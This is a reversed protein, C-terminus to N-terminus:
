GPWFTHRGSGRPNGYASRCPDHRWTRYRAGCGRQIQLKDELQQNTFAKHLAPVWNSNSYAAIASALGAVGKAFFITLAGAWAAATSSTTAGIIFVPAASADSDIHMEVAGRGIAYRVIVLGSRFLM